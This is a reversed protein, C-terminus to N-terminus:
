LIIGAEEFVKHYKKGEGEGFWPWAAGAGTLILIRKASNTNKEIM